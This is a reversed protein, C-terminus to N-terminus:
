GSPECKAVALSKSGGDGDRRKLLLEVQVPRGFAASLAKEWRDKYKEFGMSSAAVHPSSVRLRIGFATVEFSVAVLDGFRYEQWDLFGNRYGPRSELKVPVNAMLAHHVRDVAAAWAIQMLLVKEAQKSEDRTLTAPPIHAGRAKDHPPYPSVNQHSNRYSSEQFIM